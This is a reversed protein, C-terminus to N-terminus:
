VTIDLEDNNPLCNSLKTFNEGETDKQSLEVFVYYANDLILRM